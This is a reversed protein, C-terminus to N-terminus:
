SRGRRAAICEPCSVPNRSQGGPLSIGGGCAIPTWWADDDNPVLPLHRVGERDLLSWRRRYSAPDSRIEEDTRARISTYKSM